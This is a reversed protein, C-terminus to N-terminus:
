SGNFERLPALQHEACFPIKVNREFFEQILVCINHCIAKCLIENTMGTLNKTTVNNGFKRKIMSFTAEANSRKHYSRLFEEKNSTFYQFMGKWVLSGKSKDSTNRKFPIFPFAGINVV